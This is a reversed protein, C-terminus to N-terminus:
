SFISVALSSPLIAGHNASFTSARCGTRAANSPPKLRSQRGSRNSRRPAKKTSPSSSRGIPYFRRPNGCRRDRRSEARDPGHKKGKPIAQALTIQCRLPPSQADHLKRLQITSSESSIIEATIERGRGDFLVVKDGRALRLVHGAHHAESGTLRPADPNWNETAIYFRHM